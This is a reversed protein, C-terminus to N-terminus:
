KIAMYIITDGSRNMWNTGNLIEFGTSNFNMGNTQTYEASSDNPFLTLNRPNSTSRASDWINWGQGAFDANKLMVFSPEFGTTITKGTAGSGTYYGIKSYGTISKWSYMIFEAGGYLVYGGQVSVLDSTPTTNAFVNASAIKEGDTDLRLYNGAGLYNHYVQWGSTESSSPGSSKVIVLEPATSLGHPIKTVNSGSNLKGEVISFGAANNVSASVDVAASDSNTLITPLNRDHDGAKWNWTVYTYNTNNVAWNNGVTFGDSDFSTVGNTSNASTTTNDSALEKYIGRVSDFIGHSGSHSRRKAWVLDPKFGLGTISQTGGNGTHLNAKFSNAQTPTTVDPNAAFCIYIYTRGGMNIGSDATKLEFGNTLFNAKVYTDDASEVGTSDAYIVEDRPNATSRKNDLMAWSGGHSVGKIMLFAPEFGTEIFHGSTTGDGTYGGIKSFGTKNKFCYLIQSRVGSTWQNQVYTSNVVSFSSARANITNSNNFSLYNGTNFASCWIQWDDNYGPAPFKLIALDPTGSLGHPFQTDGGATIETISFDLATNISQKTPYTTVSAFQATSAVGDVMKSGSTPTQGGSNSATPAGGAKLCWAINPSNSQNNGANGGVTFGNSDFSTLGSLSYQQTNSNSEIAATAGRISDYINHQYATDRDKVWVFDPKFGVTVSKTGGNGTYLVPKFHNEPGDNTVTISFSRSSSTQNEDDTATISFTTTTDASVTPATGTIAGTNTNLSLGSPLSGTTVAYEITDSGETATVQFSASGGELVSGLSGSSTTWIPVGSYQIFNTGTVTGGDSNTLIVSYQGATKAPSTISIQTASNLTTAVSTGGVTCAIGSSFNTGNIIITEGGATDAATAAGPYDISTLTPSTVPSDWSMTGNGNSKLFQGDAGNGSVGYFQGAKPKTQAM